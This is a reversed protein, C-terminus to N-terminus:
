LFYLLLLLLLLFMFRMSAWHLPTNGQIDKSNVKAGDIGLLVSGSSQYAYSRLPFAVCYLSRSVFELLIILPRTLFLSRSRFCPLSMRQLLMEAIDANDLLIARHLATCYKQQQLSITDRRPSVEPSVKLLMLLPVYSLHVVVAAELPELLSLDYSALSLVCM